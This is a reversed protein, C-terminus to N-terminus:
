MLMVMDVLLLRSGVYAAESVRQRGAEKKCVLQLTVYLVWCQALPLLQPSILAAQM